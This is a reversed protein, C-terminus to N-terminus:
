RFQCLFLAFNYAAHMCAATTTSNTETRAWGYAIGTGLLCLWETPTSVRHLSAFITATAFIGVTRGATQTIVPQLCGRFFSEEIFPGITVNLLVVDWLRIPQAAATTAHAVLDVLFALATGDVLARQLSQGNLSTWGLLSWVPPGHRLRLMLYFNLVLFVSAVIELPLPTQVLVNAALLRFRVAVRFTLSLVFVGLSFFAIDTYGM